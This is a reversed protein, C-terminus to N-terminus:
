FFIHLYSILKNCSIPTVVPTSFYYLKECNEAEMAMNEKGHFSNIQSLQFVSCVKQTPM